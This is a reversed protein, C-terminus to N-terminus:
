ACQFAKKAVGRGNSTFDSSRAWLSHSKLTRRITDAMERQRAFDEEGGKLDQPNTVPTEYAFSKRCSDGLAFPIRGIWLTQTGPHTKPRIVYGGLSAILWIM